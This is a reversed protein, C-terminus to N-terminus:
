GGVPYIIQTEWKTTDPEMGPDTVYMEIPSGIVEVGNCSVYSEMANWTESLSEYSGYHKGVLYNGSECTGAVLGEPASAQGSVPIAIDFVADKTEKDFEHYVAMPKLEAHFEIGNAMMYEMAAGYASAYVEPTLDKMNMEFRQGIYNFSEMVKAEPFISPADKAEVMEKLMNLGIDFKTTLDAQVDAPNVFARAMLPFEAESGWAVTWGDEGEEWRMHGVSKYEFPKTFELDFKMIGPQMSTVTVKGHGVSDADSKWTYWAGEVSQDDSFEYEVSGLEAWPQWEVWKNFDTAFAQVDGACGNLSVARELKYGRNRTAVLALFGGIVVVVIILLVKLIKM